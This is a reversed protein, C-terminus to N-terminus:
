TVSTLAPAWECRCRTGVRGSPPRGGKPGLCGKSPGILQEKRHSTENSPDSFCPTGSAACGLNLCPQRHKKGLVSAGGPRQISWVGTFLFVDLRKAFVNAKGDVPLM